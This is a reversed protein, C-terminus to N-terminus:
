IKDMKLDMFRLGKGKMVPMKATDCEDSHGQGRACHEGANKQHWDAILVDLPDLGGNGVVNFKATAPISVEPGFHDLGLLSFALVFM